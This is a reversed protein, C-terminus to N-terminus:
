TRSSPAPRTGGTRPCPCRPPGARPRTACPKLSTSAPGCPARRSGPTSDRKKRRGRKEKGKAALVRKQRRRRRSRPQKIAHDRRRRPAPGLPAAARNAHDRSRATVGDRRDHSKSPTIGVRQRRPAPGPPAAARSCAMSVVRWRRSTSTDFACTERQTLLPDLSASTKCCSARARCCRVAVSTPWWCSTQPRDHDASPEVSAEPPLSFKKHRHSAARDPACRAPPLEGPPPAVPRRPTSHAGRIVSRWCWAATLASDHHGICRFKNALPPPVASRVMLNQFACVPAM